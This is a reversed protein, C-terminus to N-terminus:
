LCGFCGTAVVGECCSSWASCRLLAYGIATSLRGVLDLAVPLCRFDVIIVSHKIDMIQDWALVQAVTGASHPHAM